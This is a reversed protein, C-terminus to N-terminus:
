RCAIRFIKEAVSGPPIPSAARYPRVDNHSVTGAEDRIYAIITEMRTSCDFEIEHWLTGRDRALDRRTWLTVKDGSRKISQTDLYEEYRDASGGVHAWRDPQALASLALLTLFM